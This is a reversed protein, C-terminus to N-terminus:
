RRHQALRDVLALKLSANGNCALHYGQIKTAFRNDIEVQWAIRNILLAFEELGIKEEMDLEGQLRRNEVM